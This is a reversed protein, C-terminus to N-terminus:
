KGSYSPAGYTASPAGYGSSPESYCVSSPASYGGDQNGGGDGGENKKEKEGGFITRKKRRGCNCGDQNGSDGGGNGENKKEKDGSAVATLLRGLLGFGLIPKPQPEAIVMYTMAAFLCLLITVRMTATCNWNGM